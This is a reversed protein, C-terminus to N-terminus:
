LFIFFLGKSFNLKQSENKYLSDAFNINILYMKLIKQKLSLYAGFFLKVNKVTNKFVVFINAPRLLVVNKLGLM